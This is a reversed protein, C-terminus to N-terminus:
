PMDRLGHPVTVSYGDDPLIALATDLMATIADRRTGATVADAGEATVTWGDGDRDATVIQHPTPGCHFCFMTMKDNSIPIIQHHTQVQM